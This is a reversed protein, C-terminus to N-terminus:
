PLPKRVAGLMTERSASLCIQGRLANHRQVATSPLRGSSMEQLSLRLMMQGSLSMAGAVGAEEWNRLCVCCLDKGTARGQVSGGPLRGSIQSRGLQTGSRLAEMRLPRNRLILQLLSRTRSEAGSLLYREFSTCLHQGAPQTGQGLTM